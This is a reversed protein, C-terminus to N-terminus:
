VNRFSCRSRRQCYDYIATATSLTDIVSLDLDGGLTITGTVNVQDYTVGANPLGGTGGVEIELTAGSQLDFNNTNIVGPSFGPAVTTSSRAEVDAMTGGGTLRSGSIMILDSAFSASLQLEGDAIFSGATYTQNGVISIIGPLQFNVSGGPGDNISGGITFISNADAPEIRVDANALRTVPGLQSAGDAGALTASDSLTVANTIVIGPGIQATANSAVNVASALSGFADDDEAVVTGANITLDGTYTNAGGLTWTSAGAKTLSGTGSIVGDFSVSAGGAGTTLVGSGLALTTGSNGQVWGVTQDFNDFEIGGSLVFLGTTAPLANAATLTVQANDSIQMSNTLASANALSVDQKIQLQSGTIAGSLTGGSGGAIDLSTQAIDITGTHTSNLDLTLVASSGNAVIPEASTVSTSAGGLILTGGDNITTGTAPSGLLGVNTVMISGGNITTAGAYTNNNTIQLLGNGNKIIGGAGTVNGPFLLDTDGDVTIDGSLNFHNAFNVLGGGQGQVTGGSVDITLDNITGNTTRSVTGSAMAFSPTNITGDVVLTGGNISVAALNNETGSLTLSGGTVSINERSVVDTHTATGSDFTINTAVDPLDIVINDTVTPLTDNSWNAAVSWNANGAGGDWLVDAWRGAIYQDGALGYQPNLEALGGTGDTDLRWTVPSTSEDVRGINDDGDNDWDAVVPVNGAFGFGLITNHVSVVTATNNPWPTAGSAAHSIYWDLSASEERIALIDARGDGNIDGVRPTDTNFGFSFTADTSLVSNDNPYPTGSVGYHVYWELLSPTSSDVAIIDDIGDGNMDAVLPTMDNLGFRFRYEQTTDRDTDGLWELNGAAIGRATIVQDYGIGSLDGALVYDDLNTSGNTNAPPSTSQSNVGFKFSIEEAPDRTGSLPDTDLFVDMLNNVASAAPEPRAAGLQVDAAWLVRRELWQLIM